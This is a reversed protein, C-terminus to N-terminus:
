PRVRPKGRVPPEGRVARYGVLVSECTGDGGTARSLQRQLQQERVATLRVDITAMEREELVSDVEGGLSTALALAASLKTRSTEIRARVVPECVVTGAEVLASRLVVPTLSRFDSAATRGKGAPPVGDGVYYECQTLTVLCDTVRWGRLGSTLARRVHREMAEAFLRETKYIFIPVIRSEIGLEFRIGSGDPGPEIQLGLTASLPNSRDRLFEVAMGIGGPREICVPTVDSFRVALGFNEALTSTIVERQVEGYLSVSLDGQHHLRVNILPDQEALQSLAVRLRPGDRRDLPTVVAEMSPPAFHFEAKGMRPSGLDDGVRVDSLGALCGIEGASVARRRQRGGETFVEIGTIPRDGGSTTWVRERVRVTGEYMRLYALKTGSPAREIKFIRGSPPADVDEGAMPLLTTIGTMFLDVGAGTIGSGPYVPHAGSTVSIERTPVVAAARAGIGEVSAMQVTSVGLRAEIQQVARVDDAGLRDIKSVFFLTPVALRRLARMLSRTQPQVGEVASIVLVAGDLVSLAREVEAIFDPHGPTDILKVAVDDLSFSAVASKITIGRRKELELSDTYTTGKDVSGLQTIAGAEFLLRETLTTKGADVHALIGLNLQKL